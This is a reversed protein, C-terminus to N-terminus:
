VKRGSLKAGNPLTSSTLTTNTIVSGTILSERIKSETVLSNHTISAFVESDVIKSSIIISGPFVTSNSIDSDESIYCPGCIVSRDDVKGLVVPNGYYVIEEKVHGKADNLYNISSELYSNRDMTELELGGSKKVKTPIGNSFLINDYLVGPNEKVMEIKHDPIGDVPIMEPSTIVIVEDKNNLFVSFMDRYTNVGEVGWLEPVYVKLAEERAEVAAEWYRFSVDLLTTDVVPVKYAPMSFISALESEQETFILIM